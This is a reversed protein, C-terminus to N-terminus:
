SLHKPIGPDLLVWRGYLSLSEALYLVSSVLLDATDPPMTLIGAAAVVCMGCCKAASQKVPEEENGHHHAPNEHNGHHAVAVVHEVASACPHGAYVARVIGSASFVLTLFIVFAGYRSARM